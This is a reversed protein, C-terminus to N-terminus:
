TAVKRKRREVRQKNECKKCTAKLGYKNTCGAWNNKYFYELPLWQRCTSCFKELVEDDPDTDFSILTFGKIESKRCFNNQLEM